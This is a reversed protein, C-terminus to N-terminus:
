GVHADKICHVPALKRGLLQLAPADASIGLPSQRAGGKAEEVALQLPALHSAGQRVQAQPARNSRRRRWHRHHELIVHVKRRAESHQEPGSQSLNSGEDRGADDLLRVREIQAALRHPAAGVCM